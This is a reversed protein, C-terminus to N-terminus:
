DGSAETSEKLCVIGGIAMSVGAAIELMLLPRNPSVARTPATAPMIVTISAVKSPGAHVRYNRVIANALAAAEAPDESRVMIEILDTNRIPRCNVRLLRLADVDSLRQGRNYKKGWLDNLNLDAIVNTLVKPSEIRETESKIFLPSVTGSGGPPVVRIETVGEFLSPKNALHFAGSGGLALGGLILVIGALLTIPSKM